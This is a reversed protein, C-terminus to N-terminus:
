TTKKSPPGQAESTDCKNAKQIQRNAKQTKKNAKLIKKKKKKKRREEERGEEKKIKRVHARRPHSPRAAHGQPLHHRSKRPACLPQHGRLPRRPVSRRGGPAGDPRPVPLPHRNGRWGQRTRVRDRARPAPVAAQPHPPRDVEPVQPDRPARRDGPPVPAEEAPRAAQRRHPAREQRGQAGPFPPSYFHSVLLTSLCILTQIRPGTLPRRSHM